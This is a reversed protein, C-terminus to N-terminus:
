DYKSAAPAAGAGGVAAASSASAGAGVPQPKPPGAALSSALISGPQTFWTWAKNYYSEMLERSYLEKNKFPDEVGDPTSIRIERCAKLLTLMWVLLGISAETAPLGLATVYVVAAQKPAMKVMIAWLSNVFKEMVVIKEPADGARVGLSCSCLGLFSRAFPHLTYYPGPPSVCQLKNICLLNACECRERFGTSASTPRM